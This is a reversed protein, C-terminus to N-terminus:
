KFNRVKKFFLSDLLFVQCVAFTKPNNEGYLFLNNRKRKEM